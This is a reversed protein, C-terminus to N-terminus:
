TTAFETCQPANAEEVIRRLEDIEDSVEKIILIDKAEETVMFQNLETFVIRFNTTAEKSM